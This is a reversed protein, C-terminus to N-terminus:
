PTAIEVGPESLASDQPPALWDQSQGLDVVSAMGEPAVAPPTQYSLFWSEVHDDLVGHTKPLYGAFLPREAIDLRKLAHVRPHEGIQLRASRTFPLKFGARANFYINSKMLMGRFACYNCAAVSLPLSELRPRDVEIRVCLQGDLDYQSSVAKPAIM